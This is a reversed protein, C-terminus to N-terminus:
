PVHDEGFHEFLAEKQREIYDKPFKWILDETPVLGREAPELDALISVMIDSSVWPSMRFYAHGNGAAASEAGTVDILQLMPHRRLFDTIHKPLPRDKWMQGLRDYSLLWRSFRLASDTDSLYITLKEPVKLLGSVIAAGFGNRDFDSGVLPVRGLKLDRLATERDSRHHMLALQDLASLVIRTGASYGLVHIKEADTNKALFGLLVRLYNASLDATELDKVYAWWHPTSPWSFAIMVGDYGLFTWLETAVLVPNEFVVRYGHVYVFIEKHTSVALKANILSAFERGGRDLDPPILAPDHLESVSEALIGIEEIRDVKMRHADSRKESLALRRAEALDPYEGGATVRAIGLRLFSGRSSQYFSRGETAPERHTAYLIGQYPLDENPISAINEFPDIRPDLYVEPTPMLELTYPGSKCSTALVAVFIALAALAITHPRSRRASRRARRAAPATPPEATSAFRTRAAGIWTRTRRASMM